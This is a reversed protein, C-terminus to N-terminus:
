LYGARKLKDLTMGEKKSKQLVYKSLIDTELNVTDGTKKFGLTTNKLTHPILSIKFSDQNNSVVTLSIGDVTISGKEVIYESLSAPNSFEWIESNDKKTIKIIKGTGEVHGMVFHGGFRGDAKMAREINIKDNKKLGGLNTKAFTEESVDATFEARKSKSLWTVTLCAGNISVSDGIKIDELVTSVALRKKDTKTITGLDEIIGTFM